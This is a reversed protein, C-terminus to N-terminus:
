IDNSGQVLEEIMKRSKWSKVKRERAYAQSKNSFKQSHVLVWDKSKSTFGTHNSLHRRLRDSRDM